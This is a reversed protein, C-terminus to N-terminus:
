RNLLAEGFRDLSLQALLRDSGAQRAFRRALPPLLAFPNSFGSFLHLNSV